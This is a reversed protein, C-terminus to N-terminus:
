LKLLPKLKAIAKDLWYHTNRWTDSDERSFFNSMQQLEYRIKRVDQLLTVQEETLRAKPEHGLALQRVYESKTLQCEDAKQTILDNEWDTLRLTIVSSRKLPDDKSARRRFFPKPSQETTNQHAAM